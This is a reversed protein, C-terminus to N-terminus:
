DTPRTFEEIRRDPYSLFIKNDVGNTVGMVEDELQFFYNEYVLSKSVKFLIYNNTTDVAALIYNDYTSNGQIGTTDPINITELEVELAFVGIDNLHEWIVTTDKVTQFGDGNVNLFRWRYLTSDDKHRYLAILNSDAWTLGRGRWYMFTSDNDPFYDSQYWYLEGLPTSKFIYDTFRPQFYLNKGDNAAALYGQGNLDLPFRNVPLSEGDFKYLDIQPGSNGSRDLNTSYFYGNLYTIDAIPDTATHKSTNIDLSGQCSLIILSPFLILLSNLKM